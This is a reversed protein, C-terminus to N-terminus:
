LCAHCYHSRAWTCKGNRTRRAMLRSMNRVLAYHGAGLAEDYYLVLTIPYKAGANRSVYLPFPEFSEKDEGKMLGLVNLSIETNGAEFLAYKSTVARMPFVCNSWDFRDAEVLKRARQYSQIEKCELTPNDQLM